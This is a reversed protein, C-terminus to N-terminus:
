ALRSFHNAIHMAHIKEYEARTCDGFALHPALPGKANELARMAALLRERAESVGLKPDFDPAGPVPAALDHTMFGQRLFKRKVIKGITARFLTSRLKPYATTSYEISQACHELIQAYTWPGNVSPADGIRALEARIEAFSTSM